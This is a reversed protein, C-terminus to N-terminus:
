RHTSLVRGGACASRPLPPARAVESLLDAIAAVNRLEAAPLQLATDAGASGATSSAGEADRTGGAGDPERGQLSCIQEWLDTCGEAQNVPM